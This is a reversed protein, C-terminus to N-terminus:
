PQGGGIEELLGQVVSLMAEDMSEGNQQAYFEAFLALPDRNVPQEDLEPADSLAALAAAFDLRLTNPYVARVKNMADMVAEDTLTIHMYDDTNTGQWTAPDLLSLLSGRIERLDHKPVLPMLAIDVEGKARLTVLPLSKKHNAESFSYKLPSGAYRVTDRGIRQPGHLHGLAVYDFGDFM